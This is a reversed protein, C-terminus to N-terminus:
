ETWRMARWNANCKTPLGTAADEGVFFDFRQVSGTCFRKCDCREAFAIDCQEVFCSM